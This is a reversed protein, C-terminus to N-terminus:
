TLKAYEPPRVTVIAPLTNETVTTTKLPLPPPTCSLKTSLSPACNAALFLVSHISEDAKVAVNDLEGTGSTAHYKPDKFSQTAESAVTTRKFRFTKLAVPPLWEANKNHYWCLTSMRQFEPAEKTTVSFLNDFM